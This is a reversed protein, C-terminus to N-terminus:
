PINGHEDLLNLDENLRRRLGRRESLKKQASVPLDTLRIVGRDILTEILDELVRVFSTDLSVFDNQKHSDMSNM